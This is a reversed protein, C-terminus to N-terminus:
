RVFMMKITKVYSGAHLRCMYLGSPLQSGNADVTEFVYSYEGAEQVGNVLTKVTRGTMDYVSLSVQGSEPLNYGITTSPNFPNPYNYLTYESPLAVPAEEVAVEEQPVAKSGGRVWTESDIVALNNGPRADV